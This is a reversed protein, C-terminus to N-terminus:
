KRQKLIKLCKESEQLIIGLEVLSTGLSGVQSANPDLSCLNVGWLQLDGSEFLAVVILQLTFGLYIVNLLDQLKFM